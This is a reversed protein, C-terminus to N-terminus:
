LYIGTIGDLGRGNIGLGESGAELENSRVVRAEADLAKHKIERNTTTFFECLERALEPTVMEDSDLRMVWEYAIPVNDLAWNFQQAQNQFPHQYIKDTYKRCIELTEDTSYSDVIIIEGVWGKVSELTHGINVEENYTLIILSVPAKSNMASREGYARCDAGDGSLKRRRGRRGSKGHWLSSPNICPGSVASAAGCCRNSDR